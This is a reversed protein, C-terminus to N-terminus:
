SIVVPLLACLCHNHCPPGIISDFDVKMTKGDAHIVDGLSYYDSELDVIVGDMSSCYSCPNGSQVLWEKGRIGGAQKWAASDAFSQARTAEYVAIAAARATLATGMVHQVRASLQSDSENNDIGQSLTARLQKETEANVYEAIRSARQQSYNLIKTDTPNFQSPEAGIQKMADGGTEVLLAYLLPALAKRMSDNYASWAVLLALWDRKRKRAEATSTAAKLSKRLGDAQASDLIQDRQQEFQSQLATVIAQQYADARQSYRVIKEDGRKRREDKDQTLLSLGNDVEPQKGKTKKKVDDLSKKAAPDNNSPDEDLDDDNDDDPDEPNQHSEDDPAEGNVVADLTQAGAPGTIVIHSGLGNPLPQMGYADRAEDITLWANVGAQVEQLKQQIDEPVPNVFDLVLSPDYVKVLTQQIQHTLQRVRPVINQVAHQYFGAELNARNVNEVQGLIAPSVSFMSLIEQMSFKRTGLFQLETQKIGIPTVSGGEILLPKHANEVGTHEDQFQAKWREYSQDDMAENSNFILSPQANNAFYRRNWELMNTELDLAPASAAIISRGYFPNAPDPNFDRIINMISYRQKEIMIYSESFKKGVKFQIRHTPLIQLADPLQGRKPTYEGSGKLMLIYSEGTLNMYTYHLQRLQEGTHALNPGNLLDLLEHETIEERDGDKRRHYLKFQVAAAPDAIAKNAAFVWGLNAGLQEPATTFQHMRGTGNLSWGDLPSLPQVFEKQRANGAIFNALRLRLPQHQKDQM